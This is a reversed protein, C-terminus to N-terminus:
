GVCCVNRDNVIITEFAQITRNKLYPSKMKTAQKNLNVHAYFQENNNKFNIIYYDNYNSVSQVENNLFFQAWKLYELQENDYDAIYDSTFILQGLIANVLLVTKKQTATLKNKTKRLLFVDPDNWFANGGIQWRSLVSHLAVITSVRERARIFKLLSHEWSLHIDAGIRCYDVVGMASSLPVGCGLILSDGCTQRLFEMTEAMIQGKNKYPTSQVAAAFLFDLKFMDFGWKHKMTYFVGSLYEKVSPNQIDLAYYFGSWMPNYGVKIPNGKNDKLLWEPHKRYISSKKEVILPALWIGAKAGQKQIASSITKLGNPFKKKDVDLWDGVAHQYGDDIQFIDLPINKEQFANLNKLIINENIHTYYHYWSTWGFAAKSQSKNNFYLSNEKNKFTNWKKFVTNDEGQISCFDLAPFSHKLETKTCDKEIKLVQKQHDYQLLTYGSRENLSGFFLIEKQNKHRFYTYNWSHIKGRGREIQPFFDDGYYKLFPKAFSRLGKIEEHFQMEKSESWSQFGNAFISIFDKPNIKIEVVVKDLSIPQKTHIFLQFTNINDIKQNQIDVYLEEASTIGKPKLDLKKNNYVIYAEYELTNM